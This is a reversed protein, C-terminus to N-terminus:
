LKAKKLEDQFAPLNRHRQRIGAVYDEWDLPNQLQGFLSRVRGLYEAASQYSGRNKEQILDAVQLQYLAIAAEPIREEAVLAVKDLKTRRSRSDAQQVIAIARELEEEVLLVDVLASWNQKLELTEFLRQKLTKWDQASLKSEKFKLYRKLSPLQEFLKLSVAMTQSQSGYHEYYQELWEQQQRSGSQDQSLVYAVAQDPVGAQILRDALQYVLGPSGIFATQALAIAAEYQGQEVRLFVRQTSSGLEEVLTEYAEKKSYRPVDALLEVLAERGWRNAQITEIKQRIEAEIWQWDVENASELVGNWAGDAFGSGGMDVDKLVGKLLAKVWDTRAETKWDTAKELCSSLGEVMEYIACSVDGNYDIQQVVYDYREISESLLLHFLKGATQWDGSDLATQADTVMPSLGHAIDRMKQLQYAWEIRQQYPKLDIANGSQQPASLQVLPLLDPAQQLMQVILKLLDERKHAKLQQAIAAPQINGYSHRSMSPPKISM